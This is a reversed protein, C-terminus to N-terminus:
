GGYNAFFDFLRKIRFDVSLLDITVNNLMHTAVAEPFGFNEQIIGFVAGSIVTATFEVSLNSDHSVAFLVASSSISVTEALSSPFGMQMLAFKIGEQMGLRYVAEEMVPAILNSFIRESVGLRNVTFQHAKVVPRSIFRSVNYINRMISIPVRNVVSDQRTIHSFKRALWESGLGTLAGPGIIAPLAKVTRNQVEDM